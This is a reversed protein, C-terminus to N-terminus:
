LDDYPDFRLWIKLLFLVLNKVEEEEEEEEVLVAAAGGAISCPRCHSECSRRSPIHPSRLERCREFTTYPVPRTWMKMECHTISSAFM